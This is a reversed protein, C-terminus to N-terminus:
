FFREGDDSKISLKSKGIELSSDELGISKKKVETSNILHELLNSERKTEATICLKGCDCFNAKMEEVGYAM